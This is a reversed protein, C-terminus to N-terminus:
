SDPIYMYLNLTKIFSRVDYEENELFTFNRPTLVIMEVRRNTEVHQLKGFLLIPLNLYFLGFRKIIIIVISIIAMIVLINVSSNVTIFPLIFLGVYELSKEKGLDKNHVVKIKSLPNTTSSILKKYKIKINRIYLYIFLGQLALFIFELIFKPNNNLFLITVAPILSSYVWIIETFIKNLSKLYIFVIMLVSIILLIAKIDLLYHINETIFIWINKIMTVGGKCTM